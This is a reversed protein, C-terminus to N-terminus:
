AALEAVMGKAFKISESVGRDEPYYFSTDAIQLGAVGTQAAPIQTAFNVGCVPQAHKLRGVRAGLLDADTLAPNILKLYGFSEQIFDEDSNSFKPNTTPMYYPVYVITEPLPRLNSFEVFGPIAMREDSVNVWFNPSVSRALKLIVCAVGVNEFGEYRRALEPADALLGPVYPLPVTSIVQSAEAVTGDRLEVGTVAGDKILFRTAGNGLKVKGGKAEIAAILAKVLPESGGEIYGLKEELLSKRSRGVRSIRQWLWAASIDDTYEYFKLSLLKRWIKNYVREGCWGVLWDRATIKDLRQWDNRKTSSFALLGYRLKEIPNLKPFTLLSVPDGWRYLKGDVYYGMRTTRWQMKLGLEDMLAFTDYDSLCCFHYFREISVGDFDFHVAMGGAVPAAEIVEVEVGRKQAYYAAALGMPGAGIVLLKNKDAM